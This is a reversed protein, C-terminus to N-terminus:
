TWSNISSSAQIVRVDSRIKPAHAAFTEALPQRGNTPYIIYTRFKLSLWPLLKFTLSRPAYNRASSRILGVGLGSEVLALLTIPETVNQVVQPRFGATACAAIFRAHRESSTSESLLIWRVGDLDRPIIRRKRSLPHADSIALLSPEESVCRGAIGSGTPPTSIFGIDARGSRIAELQLPSRMTQLEVTANPFQGQFRRLLRPLVGNWMAASTFVVSLTGIQGRSRQEAEDRIKASHALLGHAQNLLWRGTETLRVRRRERVFLELQLEKELQRIQRSLPSQSINLHKAARGVHEREAVAVFYELLRLDLSSVEATEVLACNTKSLL